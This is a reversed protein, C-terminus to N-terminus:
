GAVAIALSVNKHAIERCADGRQCAPILTAGAAAITKRKADAQTRIALHRSEGAGRAIQHVVIAIPSSINERAIQGAPDGSQDAAIQCGRAARVSPRVSWDQAGISRHDSERAGGIIQRWLGHITKGVKEHLIESRSRPSQRSDILGAATAAVVEREEM